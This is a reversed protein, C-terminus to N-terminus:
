LESLYVTTIDIKEALQEQTLGRKIRAEKMRRGINEKTM